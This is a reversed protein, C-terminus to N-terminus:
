TALECSIEVAPLASQTLSGRKSGTSNADGQRSAIDICHVQHKDELSTATVNQTDDARSSTFNTMEIRIDEWRPATKTLKTSSIKGKGSALFRSTPTNWIHRSNLATLLSNSYVKTLVSLFALWLFDFSYHVFSALAALGLVLTILGCEIALLLFRRPGIKSLGGEAQILYYCLAFAVTIDLLSGAAITAVLLKRFEILYMVVSDPGSLVAQLIITVLRVVALVWCVIPIMWRGSLLKVRYAFCAQVIVDILGALVLSGRLAWPIPSDGVFSNQGFQMVSYFYNTYFSFITHIIELIWVTAVAAKVFYSDNPHHESYYYVQISVVGFLCTGLSTGILLAGLTNDITTHSLRQALGSDAM